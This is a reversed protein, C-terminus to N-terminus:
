PNSAALDDFFRYAPGVSGSLDYFLPNYSNSPSFSSGNYDGGSQDSPSFINGNNDANIVNPVSFGLNRFNSLSDNQYDGTAGFLKDAAGVDVTHQVPSPGGYDSRNELYQVVPDGIKYLFREWPGPAWQPHPDSYLTSPDWPQGTGPWEQYGVRLEPPFEIGNRAYDRLDNMVNFLRMASRPNEITLASIIGWHANWYLVAAKYANDMGREPDVLGDKSNPEFARAISEGILTGDRGIQRVRQYYYGDAPNLIPQSIQYQLDGFLTSSTATM